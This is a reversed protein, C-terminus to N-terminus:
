FNLEKYYKLYREVIIIMLIDPKMEEIENKDIEKDKHIYKMVYHCYSFNNSLLPVLHATFSDRYIMAKPLNSKGTTNIITDSPSELTYNKPYQFIVDKHHLYKSIGMMKVLDGDHSKDSYKVVDLNYQAPAVSIFDKSVQEIIKRYGLYAGLKNWHTDTKYYLEEYFEKSKLLVSRLDIVPIGRNILYPIIKDAATTDVKKITDPLKDYYITQKDPAIVFYFKINRQHLWDNFSKFWVYINELDKSNLEIYGQYDVISNGDNKDCFFLYNDKGIIVKEPVPSEHLLSYRINSYFYIAIDRGFYNDKFYKNYAKIYKIISGEYQPRIAKTRKEDIKANININSFTMFSPVCLFFMFIIFYFIKIYRKM